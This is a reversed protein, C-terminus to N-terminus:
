SFSAELSTCFLWEDLILKALSLSQYGFLKIVRTKVLPTKTVQEL